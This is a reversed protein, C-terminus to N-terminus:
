SRLQVNLCTQIMQHRIYFQSTHWQIPDASCHIALPWGKSQPKCGSVRSVLQICMMMALTSVCNGSPLHMLLQIMPFSSLVNYNSTASPAIILLCHNLPTYLVIVWWRFWDSGLRHYLWTQKRM